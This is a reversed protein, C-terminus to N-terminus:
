IDSKHTTQFAARFQKIAQHGILVMHVRHYFAGGGNLRLSDTLSNGSKNLKKYTTNVDIWKHARISGHPPIHTM